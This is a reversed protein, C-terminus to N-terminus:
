GPRRFWKDQAFYKQFTSLNWIGGGKKEEGVLFSSDLQM